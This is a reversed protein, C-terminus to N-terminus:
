NAGGCYLLCFQAMELAVLALLWHAMEHTGLYHLFAKL